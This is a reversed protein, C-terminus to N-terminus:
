YVPRAPPTKVAAQEGMVSIELECSKCSKIEVEIENDALLQVNFQLKEVNKNFNNEDAVEEGNLEIEASSVRAKKGSDGGNKVILVGSGAVPASFTFKTKEKHHESGKTKTVYVPGYITTMEAQASSVAAFIFLSSLIVLSRKM